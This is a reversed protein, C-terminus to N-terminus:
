EHGNQSDNFSTEHCSLTVDIFHTVSVELSRRSGPSM